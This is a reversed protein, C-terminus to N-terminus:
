WFAGCGEARLVYVCSWGVVALGQDYGVWRLEELLFQMALGVLHVGEEDWDGQCLLSIDVDVMPPPLKKLYVMVADFRRREGRGDRGGVGGGGAEEGEDMDDGITRSYAEECGLLLDALKCRSPGSAGM